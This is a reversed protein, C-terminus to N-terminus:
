SPLQVMIFFYATSGAALMAILFLSLLTSFRNHAIIWILVFKSIFSAGATIALLETSEALTLLDNSFLVALAYAMGHIDFLGTIFAAYPLAGPGLYKKTLSILLLVGIIILALKLIAKFDLPNTQIINIKSHNKKGFIVYSILTGMFIASILPWIIYQLLRLDVVAIVVVFAILSAITAFIAAVIRQYSIYKKNREAEAITAFVATSSILGGFFGLLVMGLNQGFLRIAIYGGFQMMALIMIIIGAKQPNFLQWPDVIRNPLFSIVALSIIVITISAEIEKATIKERAFEHLSSRGYLILFLATTLCSALLMQEYMLYGLMFVMAAAMETTVGIEGAKEHSETARYYSILLSAFIFLSLSLTLTPQNIKAVLTGLLSFLIFTRLGIAKSSKVLKREREIGIILGAALSLFFPQLLELM